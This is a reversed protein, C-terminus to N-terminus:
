ASKRRQGELGPLVAEFFANQFLTVVLEWTSAQPDKVPGSVNTKTAVEERPSNKLLAAAANVTKEFIKQLLGKDQDQVADYAKVDKFLPKLYGNVKDDKVRMESYVSFVGSAVDLGGHARLLQNFTKVPTKRITVNLDFDPSQTEPRFAGSIRTDGSGMLLGTLKVVATGESLQNSWNELEIATDAIYVRYSPNTAANIFGFESKEITGRDIHIQLTPHDSAEEAARAVKKGTDKEKQQTKTSHVFDAKLDQLSFTTLRVRQVTPAYEVHGKASLMGEAVHVQRQATLPALDELPIDTLTVDANVAPVPEAFFDAQGDLDFRGKEFVVMDIKIHSPYQFPASRVNRINEAKVNLETIHLPKTTDNERYTVEGNTIRVENVQVEHMAFLAEQWSQKQEPSADVEKAAQTRTAHIVPKEIVQDTVVRGSLLASWQLSSQIKAIAALPPEPHDKQSVTIDKLEVSLSYPHLDLAGLHVIYAPLRHNMEREAYARLPEDIFSLAVTMMIVLALPVAVWWLWKPMSSIKM